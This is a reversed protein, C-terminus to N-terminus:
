HRLNKIWPSKGRNETKIAVMLANLKAPMNVFRSGYGDDNYSKQWLILDALKKQYQELYKTNIYSTNHIELFKDVESKARQLDFVMQVSPTRLEHVKAYDTRIPSPNAVKQRALKAASQRDRVIKIAKQHSKFMRFKTKRSTKKRYIKRSPKKRSPKKRSTKKRYIKRSTKKRSPKKRSTKRYTKKRSTKKSVNTM